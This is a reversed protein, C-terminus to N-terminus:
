KLKVKSSPIKRLNNKGHQYVCDNASIDSVWAFADLICNEGLAGGVEVGSNAGFFCREGVRVDGSLTVRSSLFSHKGLTVGHGVINNSFMLVNDGVVSFPQIINSEMMIVNEGIVAASSILNSPHIFNAFEYGLSKLEEFKRKRVLNLQNYGVAVLAHFKTPPYAAALGDLAVLPLNCFSDSDRFNDDVVFAAVDHSGADMIHQYVIKSLSSAGFIIIKQMSDIQSIVALYIGM